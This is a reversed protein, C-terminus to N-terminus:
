FTAQATHFAYGWLGSGLFWGSLPSSVVLLARTLGGGMLGNEVAGTDGNQGLSIM